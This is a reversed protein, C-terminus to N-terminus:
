QQRKLEILRLFNKKGVVRACLDGASAAKATVQWRQQENEWTALLLDELHWGIADLRQRVFDSVEAPAPRLDDPIQLPRGVKEVEADAVELLEGNHADIDATVGTGAWESYVRWRPTGPGELRYAGGPGAWDFGLATLWERVQQVLESTDTDCSPVKARPTM